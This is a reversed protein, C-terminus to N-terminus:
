LRTINFIGIFSSSRFFSTELPSDFSNFELARGALAAVRGFGDASHQVAVPSIHEETNIIAATKDSLVYRRFRQLIDCIFYSANLGRSKRANLVHHQM